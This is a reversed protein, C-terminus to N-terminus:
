PLHERLIPTALNTEMTGSSVLLSAYRMPRWSNELREWSVSSYGFAPDMVLVSTHSNGIAIIYHCRRRGFIWTLKRHLSGFLPIRGIIRNQKPMLVACIVPRGKLLHNELESRSAANMSLMYAKLGKELAIARLEALSYGKDQLNPHEETIEMESTECNWYNLVASLCAPGCTYSSKQKVVNVACYNFDRYKKMFKPSNVTRPTSVCASCYFMILLCQLIIWMQPPKSM